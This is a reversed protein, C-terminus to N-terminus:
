LEVDALIPQNSPNPLLSQYYKIRPGKLTSQVIARAIFEVIIQEKGHPKVFAIGVLLLDLSDTGNVFVKHLEHRRIEFNEWVNARSVAIDLEHM